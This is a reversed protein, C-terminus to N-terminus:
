RKHYFIPLDEIAVNIEWLGPGFDLIDDMAKEM